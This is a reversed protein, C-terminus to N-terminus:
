AAAPQVDSALLKAVEGEVATGVFFEPDMGAFLRAPNHFVFDAFDEDSLLGDEVLEHAEVLVGAMDTVDWHGFDSSFMANLKRGGPLVRTDFATVNMRDDAECGYYFNPVLRDLLDEVSNVNAAAFDDVGDREVVNRLIAGEPLRGSLVEGGYQEFLSGMLERDIRAPNFQEIAEASRKEWREKLDCVLSAGWAVGCELFAFNLDPFRHTVGGFFLAKAFAHGADAFHGTQNYMYNSISRRMHVGQGVAHATVPVKLDMCRQWLPDYDFISDIALTDVWFAYPRLNPDVEEVAGIPRKVLNIFMPVKFNLEGLAFDLEEIAEHPTHCPIVAAPTLRDEFGRYIDAMMLNHARCAARRVEDDAIEPLLFGITPYVVAYDIGMEPLREHMLKPLMATALDTTNEAPAAWFAPRILNHHRRQAHDMEYWSRNNQRRLSTFMKESMEPGGVQKIYDFIVPFLEVMHGDTDIVPHDLRKRLERSPSSKAKGM